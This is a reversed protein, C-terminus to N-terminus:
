TMCVGEGCWGAALKESPDLCATAVEESGNYAHRARGARAAGRGATWGCRLEAGRGIVCPLPDLILRRREIQRDSPHVVPRSSLYPDSM